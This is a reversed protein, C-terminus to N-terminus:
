CLPAAPMTLHETLRTGRAVSSRLM